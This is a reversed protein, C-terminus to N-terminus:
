ETRMVHPPGHPVLQAIDESAGAGRAVTLPGNAAPSSDTRALIPPTISQPMVGLYHLTEGAIRRFVPAAVTGGWGKGKPGDVVVLLVFKPSEAPVFGIFSSIMSQPDYRHTQPDVKQATGTKGAVLFGPLAAKAGTGDPGTVGVLVDRVRNVVSTSVIQRAAALPAPRSTGDPQIVAEVLHPTVLHGGNALASYATVLQLPTIGIEQGIAHSVLSLGSWESVPRLLGAAEGNLDIGTPRGFGFAQLWQHLRSAGLRMGIKAAGINSSVQIIQPPTLLGHPIHDHLRHNAVVMMSGQECDILEDLQVVGDELAGALIVPKITSGPEYLDTIALNRWQSAELGALQNPNFDPRVAMSLIAGTQPEMMIAIAHEAGTEQLVADLAQETEYQIVGDVTLRLDHGRMPQSSAKPFVPRGVADREVVLWGKEGRLVRDYSLEVGELGQHDVGAFGILHSMLSRKPYFRRNEPIVGIAPQGAALAAQARAPTVQRDIWVFPRDASLKRIMDDQPRGLIAALRAGLLAPREIASPVAFLSPSESSMALVQGERDYITGREAEIPILQQQQRAARKALQGGQILQLYVLRWGVVIALVGMVAALAALRWRFQRTSLEKKCRWRAARKTMAAGAGPDM